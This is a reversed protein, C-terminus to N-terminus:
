SFLPFGGLFKHVRNRKSFFSGWTLFLTSINTEKKCFNEVFRFKVRAFYSLQDLALGRKLAVKLTFLNGRSPAIKKQLQVEFPIYEDEGEIEERLRKGFAM